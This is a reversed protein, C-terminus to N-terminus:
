DSISVEVNFGVYDDDDGQNLDYLIAAKLEVETMDMEDLEDHTVEVTINM